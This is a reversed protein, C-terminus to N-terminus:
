SPDDKRLSALFSELSVMKGAKRERYAKRLRRQIRPQLNWEMDEPSVPVLLAVPRGHRTIIADRGDRQANDLIKSANTKLEAM